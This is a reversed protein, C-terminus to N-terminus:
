QGLTAEAPCVSLPMTRARGEYQTQTAHKVRPDRHKQVWSLVREEVYNSLTEVTVFGRTDAPAGCRLGDIVAATFVGNRRVEDDYAYEGAAAASFVAQGDVNSLARLLAAATRGDPETGRRDRTLQERCADFLILSRPVRLQQVIDRVKMESVTTERHQLISGSTLLYQAGDDNIGHTAFAVILVGNRGVARSQAELLALVDSQGAPRMAAGAALLADLRQRSEPKEPDGSLALVVHEPQVLRTQPDLALVYALDIADDVAFRVETLTPDYPFERIGVFLAASETPKVPGTETAAKMPRAGGLAVPGPFLQLAAM